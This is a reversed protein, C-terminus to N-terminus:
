GFTVALNSSATAAAAYTAGIRPSAPVSSTFSITQDAVNVTQMVVNSTNGDHNTDGSYVATIGHSGVPLAATTYTANGFVQTAGDSFNTVDLPTPNATFTGVNTSSGLAGVFND